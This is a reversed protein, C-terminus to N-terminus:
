EGLGKEVLGLERRLENDREVLDVMEEVRVFRVQSDVFLVNGGEGGHNEQRDYMVIMEGSVSGDLDAGRYIYSIREEDSPDSFCIFQKKVLDAEEIMTEINSPFDGEHKDTYSLIGMGISKLNASCVARGSLEPARDLAYVMIDLIFSMFLLVGSYIVLRIFSWRFDMRKQIINYRKYFLDGARGGLVAGVIFGFMTGAIMFFMMDDTSIKGSYLLGFVHVLYSCLLGVLIGKGLCYEKYSGYEIGDTLKGLVLKVYGLGVLLGVVGGIIWGPNSQEREIYMRLTAHGFMGGLLVVM